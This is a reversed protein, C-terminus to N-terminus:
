EASHMAEIVNEPAMRGRGWQLLGRYEGEYVTGAHKGPGNPGPGM